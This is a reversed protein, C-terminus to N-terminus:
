SLRPYCISCDMTFILLKIFSIIFNTLQVACGVLVPNPLTYNIWPNLYRDGNITKYAGLEPLFQFEIRSLRPSTAPLDVQM